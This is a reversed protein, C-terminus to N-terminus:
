IYIQFHNKEEGLTSSDGHGPYIKINDPYQSINILSEKMDNMNGGLDTRGIAEKFIFDGVFMINEEKFYFTKSDNTHGPTSIIEVKLPIKKLNNIELGYYSLCEELAGIHDLHFHTVLCAIVKKNGIANKIKDFDDGPDIIIIQDDIEILYCNTDLPGVEIKKIHM